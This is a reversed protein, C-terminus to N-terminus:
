VNFSYFAPVCGRHSGSNSGASQVRTAAGVSLALAVPWGLRPETETEWFIQYFEALFDNPGPAKNHKM